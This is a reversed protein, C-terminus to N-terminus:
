ATGDLYRNSPLSGKRAVPQRGYGRHAKRGNTILSLERRVKEGAKKLDGILAEDATRIFDLAQKVDEAIAVIRERRAPHVAYQESRWRQRLDQMGRDLRTIEDVFRQRRRLSSLLMVSRQAETVSQASEDLDVKLHRCLEQQRTLIQELQTLWDHSSADTGGRETEIQSGTQPDGVTPSLPTLDGTPRQNM